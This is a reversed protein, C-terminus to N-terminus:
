VGAVLRTNSVRRNRNRDVRFESSRGPIYPRDASGRRVHERFKEKCAITPRKCCKVAVKCARNPGGLVSTRNVCSNM